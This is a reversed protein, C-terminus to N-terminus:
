HIGLYWRIVLLFLRVRNMGTWHWRWWSTPKKTLHLHSIVLLLHNPFARSNRLGALNPNDTQNSASEDLGESNRSFMHRLLPFGLPVWIISL